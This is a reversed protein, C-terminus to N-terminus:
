DARPKERDRNGNSAYALCRSPSFTQFKDQTFGKLGTDPISDKEKIIRFLGGLTQTKIVLQSQFILFTILNNIAM